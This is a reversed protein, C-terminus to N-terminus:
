ESGKQQAKIFDDYLPSLARLKEVTTVLVHLLADIDADTNERGLSFRIAGNALEHDLGMAMLVSSPELAGSSCASGTSAYMDHMDLHLLLSEGEIFRFSINVNGPLRDAGVPGNVKVHPIRTTIADMLKDRLAALRQEEAPLTPITAQLAAAMGAIGMINETGPRLSREQGGGHFLPAIKTGKRIYLAGIGKPGYFKHASLSLLDVGLDEVNVHIHGVCQVADTHLPVGHAKTIKSIAALPQIAGMENNALMVSVLCTDPTIADAVQQPDVLGEPSVPLYTITAGQKELHKCMNIIGPHEIATTIIHKGRTSATLVGELAWNDAETGSSTFFVERPTAGIAQAMVARADDVAKRVQRASSYVSSPNAYIRDAEGSLYPLMAEKAKPHMPTTAANDLYIM